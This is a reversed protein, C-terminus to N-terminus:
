RVRTGNLNYVADGRLIYIHGDILVKRAAENTETVLSEFGQQEPAIYDPDEDWMGKHDRFTSGATSYNYSNCFMEMFKGVYTNGDTGVLRYQGTYYGYRHGSAAKDDDYAVFQLRVEADTAMICGAETGNTNIYCSELDINGRTVNYVGSIACEKNTYILFSPMPMGTGGEEGTAFMIMWGFKGAPFQEVYQDLYGAEMGWVNMVIADEPIDAAKSIFDNGPIANSAPFYKGNSGITFAQVTWSWTGDKPMTTMKSTGHVTLTTYYEGNCFLVIEYADAETTVDWSFTVNDGGAVEAHVNTPEYNNTGVTFTTQMEEGLPNKKRDIVQVIATYSKGEIVTVTLPSTAIDTTEYNDFAVTEGAWVRVYLREGNTLEPQTWTLTATTHDAAVAAQLNTVVKQELEFPVTGIHGGMSGNIVDYVFIQVQYSGPKLGLLPSQATGINTVCNDWAAGRQMGSEDVNLIWKTSCYYHNDPDEYESFTVGDEYAFRDCEETTTVIGAILQQSSADFLGIAFASASYSYWSIQATCYNKDLLYADADDVIDAPTYEASHGIPAVVFNDMSLGNLSSVGGAFRFAIFPATAPMASLAYIAHTMTDVQPLTTMSVFTNADAPNTMYGIELVGYNAGVYSHKYDFAVELTDLRADLAPMAFVQETGAAGGSAYIHESGRVLTGNGEDDYTKTSVVWVQPKVSAVTWCEPEVEGTAHHYFTEVYPIAAPTCSTKFLAKPALSQEEASCYSRVYFAYKTDEFLASLTVTTASTLTADNWDVTQDAPLCVYQYQAAAGTWSVTAGSSLVESVTIGYPAECSADGALTLGYVKDLYIHDAEGVQRFAVYIRQGTFASLDVEYERWETKWLHGEVRSSTSYSAVEVFSAADTGTTSVEINLKGQSAYEKVRAAFHLKEGAAPRLCPTILYNTTGYSGPVVACAIGDYVSLTPNVDKSLRRWKSYADSDISSWGEPPFQDAEFSENLQQASISACCVAAVLFSFIKRM